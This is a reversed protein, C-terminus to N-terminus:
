GTLAELPVIRLVQSFPASLLPAFIAALQPLQAIASYSLGHDSLWPRRAAVPVELRDMLLEARAHLIVLMPIYLAALMTTFVCSWYFVVSTALPALEKSMLLVASWQMWAYMHLVGTVLFASAIVGFQRGDKIRSALVDGTWGQPPRLLSAPLFACFVAPVVVSMLNIVDLVRRLGALRAAELLKTRQLSDYTLYFIASLPQRETDVWILHAVGLVALLAALALFPLAARGRVRSRLLHVLFGVAGCGVVLYVFATAAWVKGAEIAMDRPVEATASRVQEMAHSAFPAGVLDFLFHGLALVAVPLLGVGLLPLEGSALPARRVREPGTATVTARTQQSAHDRM